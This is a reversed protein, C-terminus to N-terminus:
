YFIKKKLSFDPVRFGSYCAWELLLESACNLLMPIHLYEAALFIKYLMELGQEELFSRDWHPIDGYLIRQHYKHLPKNAYHSAWQIVKNLVAGKVKVEFPKDSKLLMVQVFYYLTSVRATHLPLDFYVGDSSVLTICAM